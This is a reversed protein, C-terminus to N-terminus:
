TVGGPAFSGAKRYPIEWLGKSAAVVRDHTGGQGQDSLSLFRMVPWTCVPSGPLGTSHSLGLGFAESGPLSIIYSEGPPRLDSFRPAVSAQKTGSDLPWLVHCESTRACQSSPHGLQLICVVKGRDRGEM